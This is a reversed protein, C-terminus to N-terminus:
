DLSFLRSVAKATYDVLPIIRAYNMRTPGIVALTGLIREGQTYPASIVSVSAVDSLESEAGIFIRFEKGEIARRLIHLLRDKEALAAFLRRMKEVDEAFSPEDLFSAEGTVFLEPHVEGESFTRQALELSKNRLHDYLAQEAEREARLRLHIQELTLEGLLENLYNTALELEHSGMPFDLSILRNQVLGEQSVLIALVRDERLRVFEIRRFTTRDLSPAMVVSAHQTLHHLLRGTEQALDPLPALHLSQEIRERERQPLGQVRLLSDVYLRFGKETPIRGASTHPKQLYGLAELDAMVSRVTASSLDYIPAIAQSGVPEGTDIFNQIIARL